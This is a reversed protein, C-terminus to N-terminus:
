KSLMEMVKASVRNGEVQGAVKPMVKGMVKGMDGASTAGTEAIAGAVIQTLEEDSLQEPLYKEIVKIEALEREALEERNNNKYSDVSDRRQKIEKQILRIVDANNAESKSEIEFNKIASKLLRLTSLATQDSSKMASVLDTNIQEALNM